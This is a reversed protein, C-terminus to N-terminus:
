SYVEIITSTDRLSAMATKVADYNRAGISTGRADFSDPGGVDFSPFYKEALTPDTDPFISTRSLFPGLISMIEITRANAFNPNWDPM